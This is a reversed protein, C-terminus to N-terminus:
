CNCCTICSTEVPSFAFLICNKDAMESIPLWSIDETTMVDYKMVVSRKSNENLNKKLRKRQPTIGIVGRRTPM